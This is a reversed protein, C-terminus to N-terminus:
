IVKPKLVNLVRERVKVNIDIGDNAFIDNISIGNSGVYGSVGSLLPVGVYWKFDTEMGPNLLLSQPIENFDYLIQKNQASIGMTLMLSGLLLYNSLRM